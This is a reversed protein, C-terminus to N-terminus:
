GTEGSIKGMQMNKYDKYARNLYNFIALSNRGYLLAKKIRSIVDKKLQKVQHINEKEFKKTLYLMNRFMYYCRVPSHIEKKKKLIFLTKISSNYVEKGLEHSLFINTFRLIPYGALITRISYDHDVSDIFLAEDFNGIKKFLCLNLLTGSTMLDNVEKVQCEESSSIIDRDNTTGFMAVNDKNEFKSFCNLYTTFSNNYFSSDQDMTLLWDFGDKIALHAAENLRKSLGENKGDHYYEIVPLKLLSNKLKAGEETNDFVYVKSISGAYSEINAITIEGPNYLFVVAAIKM